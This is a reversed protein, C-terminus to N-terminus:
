PCLGAKGLPIEVGTRLLKLADGTGSDSQHGVSQAQQGFPQMLQIHPGFKSIPALIVSCKSRSHFFRAAEAHPGLPLRATKFETGCKGLM